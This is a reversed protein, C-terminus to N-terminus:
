GKKGCNFCDTYFYILARLRLWVEDDEFEEEGDEDDGDDDDDDHIWKLDTRNTTAEEGAEEEEELLHTEGTNWERFSNRDAEWKRYSEDAKKILM